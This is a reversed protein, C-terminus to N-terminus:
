VHEYGIVIEAAAAPAAGWTVGTTAKTIGSTVLAGNVWVTIKSTAVAQRTAPFLFETQSADGVFAVFKPKYQAVGRIFQGSTGGEVGEAFSVGWLHKSVLQPTLMYVREEPNDDFGSERLSAIVKPFIVYHWVRGGTEDLAQRYAVLAVTPEFGDKDTVGSLMLNQEGVTFSLLGSLAAELTDNLRGLRLEATAAETPPLQDLQMVRDDGNHYITRYAPDNITLTKAGEATIGEYATGNVGAPRGNANLAFITASRFGVGARKKSPASM